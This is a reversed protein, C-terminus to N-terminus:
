QKKGYQAIIYEEKMEEKGSDAPGLSGRASKWANDNHAITVLSFASKTGIKEYVYDIINTIKEGLNNKLEKLEADNNIEMVSSDIPSSGFDALMKYISPLVPGLAWAQFKEEFPAEGNKALYFAYVFYLVKQIKLNTITEGDFLYRFLLYRLINEQKTKVQKLNEM